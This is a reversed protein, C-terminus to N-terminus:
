EQVILTGSMDSHGQGCYLNCFFQYEGAEDAEFEVTTTEGAPLDEDVGFAPIGIGHDYQGTESNRSEIELRVYDGEQVTISSPDFYWDDAVMEIVRDPEESDNPTSSASQTNLTAQGLLGVGILFMVALGGVLLYGAQLDRDEPISVM